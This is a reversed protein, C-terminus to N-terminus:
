LGQNALWVFTCGMAHDRWFSLGGALFRVDSMSYDDDDGEELALRESKKHNDSIPVVSDTTQPPVYPPDLTLVESEQLLRKEEGSVEKATNQIKETAVKKPPDNDTKQLNVFM